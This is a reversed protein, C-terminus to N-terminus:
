MIHGHRLFGQRRPKLILIRILGMRSHQDTGQQECIVFDTKRLDFGMNYGNVLM